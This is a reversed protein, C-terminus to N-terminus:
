QVDQAAVEPEGMARLLNLGDIESM